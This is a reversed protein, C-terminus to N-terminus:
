TAKKYLGVPIVNCQAGTDVQFRLYNGSDLQVTVCQSEDVCAGSNTAYVEEDEEGEEIARVQRSRQSRCKVAFHNLKRGVSTAHRELLLAIKGSALIMNEEM